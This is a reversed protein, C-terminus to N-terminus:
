IGFLSTVEFDGSDAFNTPLHLLRRCQHVRHGFNKLIHRGFQASVLPLELIELGRMVGLAFVGFLAAHCASFRPM